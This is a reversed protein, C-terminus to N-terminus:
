ADAANEKKKRASAYPRQEYYKEQGCKQCVGLLDGKGDEVLSLIEHHVCNKKRGKKQLRVIYPSVTLSAMKAQRSTRTKEQQATKQSAM